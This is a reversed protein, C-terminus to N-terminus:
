SGGDMRALVGVASSGLVDLDKAEVSGLEKM